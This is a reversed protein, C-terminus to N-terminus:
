AHANTNDHANAAGLLYAGECFVGMVELLYDWMGRPVSAMLSELGEVADISKCYIELSAFKQYEDFTMTKEHSLKQQKKRKRYEKQKCADSCYNVTQARKAYYQTGCASCSLLMM